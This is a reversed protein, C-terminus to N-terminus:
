ERLPPPDDFPKLYWSENKIAYARNIDMAERLNVFPWPFPAFFNVSFFDNSKSFGIVSENFRGLIDGFFRNNKDVKLLLRGSNSEVIMEIDENFNYRIFIVNKYSVVESLYVFDIKDKIDSLVQSENQKLPYAILDYDFFPWPSSIPKNLFVYGKDKEIKPLLKKLRQIAISYNKNNNRIVYVEFREPSKKNKDIIRGSENIDLMKIDGNKSLAIHTIRDWSSFDLPALSAAYNKPEQDLFDDFNKNHDNDIEIEYIKLGRAIMSENEYILEHQPNLFTASRTLMTWSHNEESSVHLAKEHAGQCGQSASAAM